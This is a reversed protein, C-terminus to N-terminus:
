DRVRALRRKRMWYYIGFCLGAVAIGAIVTPIEPIATADWKVAGDATYSIDNAVLNVSDPDYTSEVAGETYVTCQWTGGTDTGPTFTHAAKLVGAGDSSTDETERKYWTSDVKNWFIVRYNTSAAFGTGYMYVINDAPYDAFEDEQVGSDDPYGGTYSDWNANYYVTIRLFDVYVKADKGAVGKAAVTVGFNSANIDTASWSLGWLDTASGFTVIEYAGAWAAATSKNDGQRTGGKILQM